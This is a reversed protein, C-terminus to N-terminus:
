SWDDKKQLTLKCANRKQGLDGAPYNSRLRTSLQYKINQIQNRMAHRSKKRTVRVHEARTIHKPEQVLTARVIYCM